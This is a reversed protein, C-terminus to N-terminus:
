QDARHFNEDFSIVNFINCRAHSTRWVRLEDVEGAASYARSEDIGVNMERHIRGPQGLLTKFGRRALCEPSEAKRAFVHAISECCQSVQSAGIRLPGGDLKAIRDVGSHNLARTKDDRCVDDTCAGAM